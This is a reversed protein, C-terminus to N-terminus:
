MEYLIKHLTLIQLLIRKVLLLRMQQQISLSYVFLLFPSISLLYLSFHHFIFYLIYFIFYLIYFIFYLIYFIFYLIYFIFYLVFGRLYIINIIILLSYLIHILIIATTTDNKCCIKLSGYYM